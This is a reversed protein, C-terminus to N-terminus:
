VSERFLRVTREREADSGSEAVSHPDDLVLLDARGSTLRPFPVGERSGTATNSFSTEAVRTLRVTDGWLGRYWPSLVLDRMRRADRAAYADSYSSGIIRAHPRGKPGWLWAPFFVGTLLSKAMGPPINILLRTLRGDAVAELHQCIADLAPGWKLVQGPELVKWAREVFGALSAACYAREIGRRQALLEDPAMPRVRWGTWSRSSSAWASPRCGAGTRCAASRCRRPTRTAASRSGSRRGAGLM